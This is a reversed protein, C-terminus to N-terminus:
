GVEFRGTSGLQTAFHYCVTGSSNRSGALRRPLRLSRTDLPRRFRKSGFATELAQVQGRLRQYTRRHKGKARPALAENVDPWGGLQLCILMDRYVAFQIPKFGSAVRSREVLLAPSGAGRAALRLTGIGLIPDWNQIRPGWNLLRFLSQPGAAGGWSPGHPYAGSGNESFLFYFDSLFVKKSKRERSEIVESRLDAHERAIIRHLAICLNYTRYSKRPM